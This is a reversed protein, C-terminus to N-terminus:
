EGTITIINQSDPLRSALIHAEDTFQEEAEEVTEANTAFIMTFTTDEHLIFAQKRGVAAAFCHYGEVTISEEGIFITAHGNVILITPVEILTGTFVAGKPITVTRSYMGGHLIHRTLVPLQPCTAIIGEVRRVADVAEDTMTPITQQNTTLANM